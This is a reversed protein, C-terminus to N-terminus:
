RVKVFLARALALRMRSRTDVDAVRCLTLSRDFAGGVELSPSQLSAKPRRASDLAQNRDSDQLPEMLYISFGGALLVAAKAPGSEAEMDALRVSM